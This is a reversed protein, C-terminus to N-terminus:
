WLSTESVKKSLTNVSILLVFNIVSNFLGVAASYSFEAGELGIRYVHTAIVDSVGLNLDNQMLFIKEFGINMIKGMNLILLVIAVPMIGPLTIHRMMRMKTAGDVKAAEYLAQDIGALAAMYIISSWGTNQWIGSFVFITKFWEPETMFSIPQGGLAKILENVVGNRPSLFATIMGVLVVTSLFHPAYTVTQVFKKFRKHKIENMMLALIIPAPFGAVLQYISIGFTNKILSWFHYSNFFRKFNQFGIWASDWIGKGPMFKKFAIQVGYMPLYHFVIFYAVVPVLLLYLDWNKKAARVFRTKLSLKKVDPTSTAFQQM